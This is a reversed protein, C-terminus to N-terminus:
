AFDIYGVFLFPEHSVYRLCLALFCLDTFYEDVGALRSLPLRVYIVCSGSPRGSLLCAESADYPGPPIDDNGFTAFVLDWSVWIVVVLRCAQVHLVFLTM